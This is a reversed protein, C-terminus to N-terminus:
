GLLGVSQTHILCGFFRGLGVLATSGYVSMRTYFFLLM